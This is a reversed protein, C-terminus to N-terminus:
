CVRPANRVYCLRLCRGPHRATGCAKECARAVKSCIHIGLLPRVPVTRCDPGEHRHLWGRGDFFPNAHCGHVAILPGPGATAVPAVASPNLGAAAPLAASVALIFM